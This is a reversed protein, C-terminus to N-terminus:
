DHCNMSASLCRPTHHKEPPLTSARGVYDWAQETCICSPLPTRIGGTRCLDSLHWFIDFASSNRVMITKGMRSWCLQLCHSRWSPKHRIPWSGPGPFNSSGALAPSTALSNLNHCFRLICPQALSNQHRSSKRSIQQCTSGVAYLVLVKCLVSKATATGAHFVTPFSGDTPSFEVHLFTAIRSHFATNFM